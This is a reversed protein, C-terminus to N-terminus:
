HDRWGEHDAHTLLADFDEKSYAETDPSPISSLREDEQQPTTPRNDYEALRAVRVNSRRKTNKSFDEVTRWIESLQESVEYTRAMERKNELVMRRALRHEWLSLGEMEEKMCPITLYADEQKDYVYISGLNMPDRKITVYADEGVARYLDNLRESNYLANHIEIGKRTLRRELKEGLLILLDESNELVDVPYDRVGQKWRDVPFDQIGRHFKRAYVDVIWKLLIEQFVSFPISAAKVPDYDGKELINSFTKGKLKSLLGENISQFFREIAGKYHPERVPHNVISIGLAACADRLSESHFESGNDVLITRPLGYCPWDGDISPLRTLPADKPLIGHRLCLMLSEYGPSIFGVYVGVPMRSFLDLAVTLRPRAVFGEVPALVQIDLITHDIQVCDLPAEVTLGKGVSKFKQDALRKGHRKSMVEYPDLSKLFRYVTADSPSHLADDSSRLNNEDRFRRHISPIISRLTPREAVLYENELVETLLRVSDPCLTQGKRGRANHRPALSSLSKGSNRWARYWRYITSPSPPKPDSTSSATKSIAASLFSHVPSAGSLEDLALVYSERRRAEHRQDDPLLDFQRPNRDKTQGFTATGNLVGREIESRDCIQSTGHFLDDIVLENDGTIERIRYSKGGKIIQDGVVIKCRAM